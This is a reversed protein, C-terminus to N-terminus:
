SPVASASAGPGVLVPGVWIDAEVVIAQRCRHLIATPCASARPDNVHVRLVQPSVENWAGAVSPVNAGVVLQLYSSVLQPPYSPSDQLLWGDLCPPVLPNPPELNALCDSQVFILFGGILFSTDGPVLAAHASIGNGRFVPVGDLVRPLGDPWPTSDTSSEDASPTMAFSVLSAGAAISLTPNPLSVVRPSDTPRSAAPVVYGTAVLAAAGVLLLATLVVAGLRPSFHDRM